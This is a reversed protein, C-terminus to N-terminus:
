LRLISQYLSVDNILLPEDNWLESHSKFCKGNTVQRLTLFQLQFLVQKQHKTGFLQHGPEMMNKTEEAIETFCMGLQESCGNGLKM